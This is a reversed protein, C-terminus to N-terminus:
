RKLMKEHSTYLEEGKELDSRARTRARRLTHNPAERGQSIMAEQIGPSRALAEERDPV